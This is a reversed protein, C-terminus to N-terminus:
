LVGPKLSLTRAPEAFCGVGLPLTPAPRRPAQPTRQPAAVPAAAPVPTGDLRSERMFDAPTVVPAFQITRAPEERARKLPPLIIRPPPNLLLPRPLRPLAASAPPPAAAPESDDTPLTSFSVYGTPVSRRTELHHVMVEGKQWIPFRYGMSEPLPLFGHEPPTLAMTRLACLLGSMTARMRWSESAYVSLRFAGAAVSPTDFYKGSRCHIYVAVLAGTQQTMLFAQDMLYSRRRYYVDMRSRDARMLSSPSPDELPPLEIEPEPSAPTDDEPLHSEIAAQEDLWDQWDLLGETSGDAATAMTATAAHMQRNMRQWMPASADDGDVDLSPEGSADTYTSANSNEGSLQLRTSRHFRRRRDNRRFAMTVYHDTVKSQSCTIPITRDVSPDYDDEYGHMPHPPSQMPTYLDTKDLPSTPQFLTELNPNELIGRWANSTYLAYHAPREKDSCLRAVVAVNCDVVEELQQARQMLVHYQQLFRTEREQADPIYFAGASRKPRGRQKVAPEAAAAM